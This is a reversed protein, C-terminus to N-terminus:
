CRGYKDDFRRIDDEGLYSGTQVEILELPIKGPNELRHRTGWPIYTSQDENLLFEEDGKTIRATGKVVVWHEARHYHMQLSLAAGPNVIIRKVNFREGTDTSEYSGWPRYSRPHSLAEERMQEKLRGVILKVDQSREISSVLVADKTEIIIQNEIGLAAVLRNESHIFCNRVDELLVDGTVANGSNDKECVEYVSPWSGVDSWGVDLPVVVAQPTREMIAYDISINPCSAFSTEELRVFDLDQRANAYSDRCASLIEPCLRGLESLFVSARFMFIGSNWFYEKSALFSCAKEYDPKEVFERVTCADGDPHGPVSQGRRIYGYGTEPRDPVIGFTIIKGEPTLESGKHVASAFRRNERILHDAPLVIVDPDEDSKIAALVGVTIAPCTNRGVPELIIASPAVKLSQMQAAAMFRHSENCVIVPPHTGAIKSLRLITKQFLSHEGGLLPMLQKPLHERSLPWLRSGVGGSLIVPVIMTTRGYNSFLTTPKGGSLRAVRPM